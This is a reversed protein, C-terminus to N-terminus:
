EVVKMKRKALELASKPTNYDYIVREYTEELIDQIELWKPHVPTMKSNKLQEAFIMKKPNTLFYSDAFYNKDAPFGGEPIKKCFELTNKGNTLWKVFKQANELKNSSKSVALYEGGAFSTGKGIKTDPILMLKYKLNPNEKELMNLLWAGSIHFGINGQLFMRDLNRQNEVIGYNSSLKYLQLAYINEKSDIEPLVWEGNSSWIYTMAKKYLRNKDPGNVSIGYVEKEKDTIKKSMELMEEFTNPLETINAQNLLELNVFIVRTDVIWPLAYVQNEWYSPSKSFDTFNDLSSSEFKALVNSGSFQAVWDSGLELVDPPNGSNFAAILKSKGNNWSLQSIEVKIKTQKEFENVLSDIVKAQYPESWFHWFTIHESIINESKNCSITINAIIFIWILKKM